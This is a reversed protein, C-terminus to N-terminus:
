DETEFEFEYHLKSGMGSWGFASNMQLSDDLEGAAGTLGKERQGAREKAEEKSRGHSPTSFLNRSVTEPRVDGTGQMDQKPGEKGAKEQLAKPPQMSQNQLWKKLTSEGKKASSGIGQQKSSEKKHSGQSVPEKNLRNSLQLLLRKTPSERNSTTETEKKEKKSSEIKEELIGVIQNAVPKRAPNLAPKKVLELKGVSTSLERGSLRSVSKEKLVPNKPEPKKALFVKPKEVLKLNMSRNVNNRASEITTPKNQSSKKGDKGKEDSEPSSSFCNIVKDTKSEPFIVLSNRLSNSVSIQKPKSVAQLKSKSQNPIFSQANESPRHSIPEKLTITPKAM